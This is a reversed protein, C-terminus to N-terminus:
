LFHINRLTGSQKLHLVRIWCHIFINVLAVSFSNLQSSAVMRIQTYQLAFLAGGGHNGSDSTHWLCLSLVSSFRVGKETSLKM